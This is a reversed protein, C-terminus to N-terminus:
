IEDVSEIYRLLPYPNIWFKSRTFSVDPAIAIYLHVPFSHKHKEGGTNGMQGLHQGAFIETGASIGQAISDLHAYLYYTNNNTVIGVFYGLTNDWSAERVRGGTMSVVPVRGRINERDIIATGMHTKNGQYNHAIGWSDGFMVSADHEYMDKSIPFAEIESFLNEFMKVYPALSRSNYRRVLRNFDSVYLGELNKIDYYNQKEPFFNNEANFVAFLEPFSIDNKAAHVRLVGIASHPVRLAAVTEANVRVRVGQRLLGFIMAFILIIVGVVCLRFFFEKRRRTKLINPLPSFRPM